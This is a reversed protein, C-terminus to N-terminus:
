RAVGVDDKEASPAELAPLARATTLIHVLTALEDSKLRSLDFEQIV